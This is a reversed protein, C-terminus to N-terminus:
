AGPRLGSTDMLRGMRSELASHKGPNLGGPCLAGASRREAISMVTSTNIRQATSRGLGQSKQARARRRGLGSATSHELGRSLAPRHGPQVADWARATKRGLGQSHQARLGPQAASQAATTRRGICLPRDACHSDPRRHGHREDERRGGAGGAADPLVGSRLGQARLQTWTLLPAVGPVPLVCSM